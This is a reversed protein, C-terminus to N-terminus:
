PARSARLTPAWDVLASVVDADLASTAVRIPGQWGAARAVEVLRPAVVLLPLALLEACGAAVLLAALNDLTQASTAVVVDPRSAAIRTRAAADLPPPAVRRYVEAHVVVAGRERLGDALLERGGEGRVVVVVRGAVAERALAPLALLGASSADGAPSAAAVAHAALARATAAGVALVALGALRAGLDPALAWAGAVANGSVFICAAAGPLRALAARASAPDAPPAIAIAPVAVAAGGRDALVRALAEGQGAPRAVLVQLGALAAADPPM